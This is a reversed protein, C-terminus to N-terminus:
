KKPPMTPVATRPWSKSRNPHGAATAPMPAARVAAERSASRISSIFLLGRKAYAQREVCRRASGGALRSLLRARARLRRLRVARACSGACSQEHTFASIQSCPPPGRGRPLPHVRTEEFRFLREISVIWAYSPKMGASQKGGIRLRSSLPPNGFPLLRM